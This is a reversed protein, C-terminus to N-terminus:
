SKFTVQDASAAEQLTQCDYVVFPKDICKSHRVLLKGKICVMSVCKLGLLQDDAAAANRACVEQWKGQSDISIRTLGREANYNYIHTPDLAWADCSMTLQSSADSGFDIKDCLTKIKREDNM